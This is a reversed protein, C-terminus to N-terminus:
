NRFPQLEPESGLQKKARKLRTKVTNVPIGQSKAIEAPTKDDFYRQMLTSRYPEPLRSVCKNVLLTRESNLLNIIPEDEKGTPNVHEIQHWYPNRVKRRRNLDISITRAVQKIYGKQSVNWERSTRNKLCRECVRQYLDNGGSMRLIQSKSDELQSEITTPKLIQIM